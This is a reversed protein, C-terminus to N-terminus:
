LRAKDRIRDENEASFIKERLGSTSWGHDRKHYYIEESYEQGTAHRGKWDEGLIRIHPRMGRLIEALDDETGYLVIQDIHKNSQLLIRREELSLIPKNKYPRDVTPDIQLGAILYDCKSKADEIMLCHGAHLLDFCSAIFGHKVNNM